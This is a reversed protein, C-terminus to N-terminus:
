DPTRTISKWVMPVLEFDREFERLTYIRVVPTSLAETVMALRWQPAKRYGHENATMFLRPANGSTGKVEVHLVSRDRLSVAELDFGVNESERSQCKYGLVELAKKAARVANEEVAKRHEPTGFGALPDTEDSELDPASKTDPNEVAIGALRQLQNELIALVELKNASQTVNPGTLFSYKGMRISPHKFPETRLEPPVLYATQARISYLFEEDGPAALGPDFADPRRMFRGELVADEYWGVIHIGVQKPNKALCIVKWGTPELSTPTARYAGQPPTYCYYTGDKQRLFNWAEHGREGNAISSFNGDLPGGRYFDSWGFKVWLIKPM